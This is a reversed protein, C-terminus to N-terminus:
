LCFGPYMQNEETHGLVLTQRQDLVRYEQTVRVSSSTPGKWQQSTQTFGAECACFNGGERTKQAPPGARGGSWLGLLLHQCHTTEQRPRWPKQGKAKAEVSQLAWRVLCWIVRHTIHPCSECMPTPGHCHSATSTQGPLSRRASSLLLHKESSISLSQM